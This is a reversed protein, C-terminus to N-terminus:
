TIEQNKSASFSYQDERYRLNLGGDKNKAKEQGLVFVLTFALVVNSILLGCYSSIPYHDNSITGQFHNVPEGEVYEKLDGKARVM